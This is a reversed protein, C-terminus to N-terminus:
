FFRINLKLALLFIGSNTKNTTESNRSHYRQLKYNPKLQDSSTSNTSRSSNNSNSRSTSLSYDYLNSRNNNDTGLLGEQEEYLNSSKIKKKNTKEDLKPSSNSDSSCSYSLYTSATGTSMQSEFKKFGGLFKKILNVNKSKNADGPEGARKENIQKATLNPKRKFTIVNNLNNLNTASLDADAGNLSGLESDIDDDNVLKDNNKDTSFESISENNTQREEDFTDQKFIKLLDDTNEEITKFPNNFDVSQISLYKKPNLCMKDFENALLKFNPRAEPEALWCRLLIIYVDLSAMEPKALRTGKQISNYITLPETDPYEAYPKSCFTFIEWLCIGYSWVDSKHNFLRKKISEIALWKFPVLSSERVYIGEENSDLVRALGFDTIKIHNFKHVLINRAALDRHVIGREELYAMGQAIQKAWTLLMLETVQDRYKQFFTVVSGYKMLQTILMMPEALCIGTLRLCYEHDVSAM